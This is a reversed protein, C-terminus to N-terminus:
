VQGERFMPPPPQDKGDGGAEQVNAPDSPPNVVHVEQPGPPAVKDTLTKNTEATIRATVAEETDKQSVRFLANAAAGLALLLGGVAADMIRVVSDKDPPWVQATIVVSLVAIILISFAWFKEGFQTRVYEHQHEEM